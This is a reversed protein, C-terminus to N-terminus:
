MSIAKERVNYDIRNRIEELTTPNFFKGDEYILQLEGMSEEEESCETMVYYEGHADQHVACRGKLSKKGGDDTIPDKFIDYGRKFDKGEFQDYEAREFWAGKVAFGLTDRTNYQYTFSGIGLVINVTAFGQEELRKYIEVQRELNIAEGYIAGIHSDLVKYGQSNITGGFIDWLCQILGKTYFEPYDAKKMRDTLEGDWGCIIEVPTLPTPSSDPRIVLKGDRNIIEDKIESLIGGPKVVKTIDMTDMVASLIGIPFKKLWDLLMQKEGVTFIKTTSVSHESANVSNIPMENRAVGYFKRTAPIVALTDSGKFSFAHAMGSSVMDWPSLGRASFDHCMYPILAKSDKSTLDMWEEVNRRYALALTASTSGKWLASSVITELYLTLWAFGDVTNKFTEHPVNPLTEVGEPLAKVRMPLYGLEHLEKFHGGDMPLGLYMTMDYVFDKLEAWDKNFFHNKWQEDLWMWVFQHHASVAREITKSIYKFKRPIMTGYLVTIGDALMDKHGLKYGDTLYLPNFGFM